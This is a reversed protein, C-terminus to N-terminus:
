LHINKKDKIYFGGKTSNITMEDATYTQIKVASAGSDAAMDIIKLAKNLSGGHNASMEAIIFPPYKSGIKILKKKM